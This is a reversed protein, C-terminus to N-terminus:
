FDQKKKRLVACIMFGGCAFALIIWLWANSNDATKPADSDTTETSEAPKSPETPESTEKEPDKTYVANIETDELINKGDKDWTPATQTYGEKRPITPLTADKGHGVIETSLVEGDVIYTVKYNKYITVKYTIENGVKDTAVVTHEANDAVIIYQGETLTVDEGDVKVMDVGALEDNVTITVDGYYTQGNEIGTIAPVLKDIIIGESNVYSINGANDTVKIYVVNKQNDKLNIKSGTEYVAWDSVKSEIQGAVDADDLDANAILDEDAIYYEIKKVGSGADTAALDLQVSDSEYIGFTVVKLIIDWISEGYTITAQPASVDAIGEVTVILDSETDNTSDVRQDTGWLRDASGFYVKFDDTIAYGENIELTVTVEDHWGYEMPSATVSYGIQNSPLVVHLKTGEGVTVETEPSPNHASDAKYRVYYTGGQLDIITNGTIASYTSTGDIRYEMNSNVGTISGDAKNYITENEVGLNTPAAQNAKEVTEVYKYLTIAKQGTYSSSKYYRFRDQGSTTNFRLYAGGSVLNVTDDSNMSITNSYTTSTHSKLGNANSTQGIYYGSASKIVYNSGSKEITFQSEQIEDTAEIKGDTITVTIYNNVADLTGLSGDFAMNEDEYVILYDGSWDAPAETVKVYNKTVTPQTSDSGGQNGGSSSTDIATSYYTTGASRKYLSLPGGVNTNKAYCAFGVDGNRRLLPNVGNADNGKNVFEYTSTGSATFKAFDDAASSILTAQNKTGSGAAYKQTSANYFTWDSGNKELKWIIAGNSTIINSGTHTVTTIALRTKGTDAATMAGGDYVVLYDGETLEGSYPVFVDSLTSGGQEVHSYLAYLSTNDTVTYNSGVAYFNPTTTTEQQLSTSVWGIFTYGEQVSGTHAPLQIVDGAYATQTSATNGSEEFRITKQSRAAFNIQISVDSTASVTFVNGNKVVTANGSLITYGTTEYGTAPSANIVSGSVAVTGWASINSYATIEYESESANGSPTTYNAPISEGFLIFALEPYDVFVNRTGTISEVADNRGLEWTDVPDEEIWDLLVDKSEMVGSTGWMKDTLGWRVYQYLMIRAVDGHLNYAGNSVDNPDYYDSSVGYAQNGRSSNESKATPRLMMIDDEESGENGKSDPWTHERNWTAGSDWAPGIAKGSYFSSIKNSIKGSNQCDTYQFLPRTADYSTQYSHNETMLDQLERYLASSPVSSVTSSGSFSALEMYSTNNDAYFKEANQSLFTADTGREGWNLIYNGAYTYDVNAAQTSLDVGFFVSVSMMLAMLMALSRKMVRKM